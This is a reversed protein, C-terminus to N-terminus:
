VTLTLRLMPMTLGSEVEGSCVDWAKYEPILVVPEVGDSAARFLCGRLSCISAVASIIHFWMRYELLCRLMRIGGIDYSGTM